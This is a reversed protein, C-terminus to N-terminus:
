VVPESVIGAFTSAALPPELRTTTYCPLAAAALTGSASASSSFSTRLAILCDCVIIVSNKGQSDLQPLPSSCLFERGPDFRDEIFLVADRLILEAHATM